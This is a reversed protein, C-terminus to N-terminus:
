CPDGVWAAEGSAIQEDTYPGVDPEDWPFGDEDELADRHADTCLAVFAPDAAPTV